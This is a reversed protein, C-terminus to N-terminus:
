ALNVAENGLVRGGGSDPHDPADTRANAEEGLVWLLAAHNGFIAVRSNAFQDDGRITDHRAVASIPVDDLDNSDIVACM